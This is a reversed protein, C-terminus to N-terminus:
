VEKKDKQKKMEEREGRFSPGDLTVRYANHRLRDITAAALQTNRLSIIVLEPRM